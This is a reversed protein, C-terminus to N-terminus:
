FAGISEILPHDECLPGYSYKGIKTSFCKNKKDGTMCSLEAIAEERFFTNIQAKLDKYIAENISALIVCCAQCDHQSLYAVPKVSPNFRCIHNDIILEERIGYVMNLIQKVQIGVDGYPFIIFRKYGRGLKEEICQKIQSVLTKM